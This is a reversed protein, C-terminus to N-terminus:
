PRLVDRPMTGEKTAHGAAYDLLCALARLAPHTDLLGAPLEKEENGATGPAASTFYM